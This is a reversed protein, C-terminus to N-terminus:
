PSQHYSSEFTQTLMKYTGELMPARTIIHRVQAVTMTKETIQGDWISGNILKVQVPEKKYTSIGVDPYSTSDVQGLHIQGDEQAIFRIVHTWNAPM